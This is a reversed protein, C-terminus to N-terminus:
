ILSCFSLIIQKIIYQINKRENIKDWYETFYKSIESEGTGEDGIFMVHRNNHFSLKIAKLVKELPPKIFLFENKFFLPTKPKTTNLNPYKKLILKLKEYEKSKYRSGYIILIAEKIDEGNAIANITAEIERITFCLIDNKREELNSWKFHFEILDKLLGKPINNKDGLGKAIQYVINSIFYFM